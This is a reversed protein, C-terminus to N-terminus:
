FSSLIEVNLIYENQITNYLCDIIFSKCEQAKEINGEEMTKPLLAEAVIYCEGNEAKAVVYSRQDDAEQRKGERDEVHQTHRGLEKPIQDLFVVFLM